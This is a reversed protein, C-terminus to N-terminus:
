WSDHRNCGFFADSSAYLLQSRDHKHFPILHGNPYDKAMAVIPRPVKTFEKAPDFFDAKTLNEINKTKM